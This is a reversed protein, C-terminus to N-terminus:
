IMYKARHPIAEFRDIVRRQLIELKKHKSPTCYLDIMVKPGSYNYAWTVKSKNSMYRCGIFCRLLTKDIKDAEKIIFQICQIFQDKNIAFALNYSTLTPKYAWLLFNPRDEISDLQPWPHYLYDYDFPSTVIQTPKIRLFSVFRQVARRLMPINADVWWWLHLRWNKFFGFKIKSLSAFSHEQSYNPEFTSVLCSPRIPDSYPLVSVAMQGYFKVESLRKVHSEFLFSQVPLTRIELALVVRYDHIKSMDHIYKIELNDDLVAAGIVSDVIMSDNGFGSTTLVAGIITQKRYNGCNVMRRHKQNLYIMIDDIKASAGCFLTDKKENYKLFEFSKGLSVTKKHLAIKNYSHLSGIPKAGLDIAYKLEKIDNAVTHMSNIEHVRLWSSLKKKFFLISM